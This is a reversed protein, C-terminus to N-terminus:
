RVTDDPPRSDGVAANDLFVDGSPITYDTVASESEVEVKKLGRENNQVAAAPQQNATATSQKLAINAQLTNLVDKLEVQAVKTAPKRHPKAALAHNKVVSSHNSVTAQALLREQSMNGAPYSVVSIVTFAGIAFTSFLKM